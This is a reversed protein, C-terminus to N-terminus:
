PDLPTQTAEEMAGLAAHLETLADLRSIRTTAREVEASILAIRDGEGAALIRTLSEIQRGQEAILEDATALKARAATIGAAARDCGALVKAQVADFKAAAEKRKAEAEAIPGQNQNLIPLTLGIGLAWKNEGTDLQLVLRCDVLM